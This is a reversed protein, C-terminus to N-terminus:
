IPISYYVARRFQDLFLFAFLLANDFYSSNDFAM